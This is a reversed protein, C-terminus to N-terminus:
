DFFSSNEERKSRVKSNATRDLFQSNDDDEESSDDEDEM